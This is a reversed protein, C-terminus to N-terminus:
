SSAELAQAQVLEFYKGKRALLEFHTGQELVKGGDFVYIVDANQITSLRHAVAITTRGKAAKDLAAQVVKESESDLASTAEDLLLVKPERILARAIAIRQKQGGSLLIGKTGCMTDYGDPLSSIFDHINSQKCVEILREDSITEAPELSGLKINDRISAAYLVPEQQVLAIHSRYNGINLTNVDHGDFLVQGSLPRYFQEVLSITTSKGCGSAGVLAVYQGKKITLNLGRLVPVSTRTPYRFHVDKFEIDGRVDDRELRVGEDSWRDIEPKREFLEKIAAAASKAKTMDAAYSFVIGANQSGFISSMFAIYFELTSYTGDRIFRAGWWFGISMVLFQLGQAAGYLIASKITSLRSDRAQQRLSTEYKNIVDEERTLFTVTRVSSVAECAFSASKENSKKTNEQVRSLMSFRGYGCAIMLPICAIFVFSMKPAVAVALISGAVINFLANMIQGLTAGSLGEVSQADQSLITTLRGTANEKKDFFAIDQRLFHRFTHYRIRRVLRQGVFSLTANCLFYSAAQVWGLGFFIGTYIRILRLMEEYNPAQGPGGVTQRFATLCLAYLVSVTPQGLGNIAACVTGIVLFRNEDKTISALFKILEWSSYDKREPEPPQQSIIISSISKGTKTRSLKLDTKEDAFEDEKSSITESATSSAGDYEEFESDPDSESATSSENGDIKQAQVLEYYEGKRELLENHTGTEIIKGKSMVVIKDADKITSLRHAIVITTRNKSAADLAAQVVGESKTDLASTAEDLLLIKPDSVIARAIAIRQKQGGSMLFGREGVQTQLGQPLKEIFTWANAKKCADIVLAEKEVDSAFEHKTGILGFAINEFVTVAFLIPEQSVLSIHQRLWKIDINELDHGDLYVKGGVPTYFRELIGIITSKGSGSAGVLAITKGAEINLNFNELVTSQARSPYIFKVDKLEIDGKISEETYKEGRKFPDIASDRDIATYIKAVSAIGNTIHRLLPPINSLFFSGMMMVMLVSMVQRIELYNTALYRSGQFFALSYNCYMFFWMMGTMFGLIMGAKHGWTETIVLFQDYQLALRDEIAFAQANRISSLVEEAITGGVAYGALSKRFYKVMFRSSYTMTFLVTFTISLLILTLRWSRTLAVVMASLFTTINSTAQSVKESMGEQVLLTDTSIRSTIEGTGLKDFYAINQRLTAELYHKRIRSSLVEGRDIFIYTAITSTFLDTIALGVFFLAIQNISRQFEEESIVPYSSEDYYDNYYTTSNFESYTTSNYPATSNAYSYNYDYDGDFSRPNYTVFLQAVNGVLLTMLPRLVGEIIATLFGFGLILRDKFTAYRYFSFFNASQPEVIVQSRLIQAEHHPLHSFEDKVEVSSSGLLSTKENAPSDAAVSKDDNIDKKRGLRKWSM